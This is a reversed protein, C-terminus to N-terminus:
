QGSYNCKKGKKCFRDPTARPGLLRKVMGAFAGAGVALPYGWAWYLAAGASFMLGKERVFLAMLEKSVVLNVVLLFLVAALSLSAGQFFLPGVSLASLFFCVVSVKLEVSATGSDALLDKNALSYRTWQMSKRFGNRMSRIFTFNFIHMVQLEPRMVLRLGARRLQHSFAVDEPVPIKEETFGESSAFLGADIVLAHGAIYDPEKKKTESYHIFLSQFASFFDKDFPLPTYTGGIVAGAQEAAAKNALGLADKQILCDADTFFLLEGKSNAAGKNRAAGAGAHREMRILTCPYSAIIAASNDTSCDDVVVVEFKVYRSALAAEICKGLTASGNYNPIIISIFKEM